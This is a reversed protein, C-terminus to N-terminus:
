INKACRNRIIVNRLQGGWWKTFRSWLRMLQFDIGSIELRDLFTWNVCMAASLKWIWGSYRRLNNTNGSFSKTTINTSFHPDTQISLCFGIYMDNSLWDPDAPMSISFNWIGHFSVLQNIWLIISPAPPFEVAGLYIYMRRRVNASGAQNRSEQPM